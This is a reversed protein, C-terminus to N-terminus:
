IIPIFNRVSPPDGALEIASLFYAGDWHHQQVWVGAAFQMQRLKKDTIYDFGSGFASTRRYKCEVFYKVPGKQAVIDIECRPTHWNYELIVFGRSILYEAAVHEAERGINTTNV